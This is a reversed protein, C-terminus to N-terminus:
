LFNIWTTRLYPLFQMPHRSPRSAQHGHLWVTHGARNQASSMLYILTSIISRWNLPSAWLPYRVEELVCLSHSSLWSDTLATLSWVGSRSEWASVQSPVGPIFYFCFTVQNQSSVSSKELLVRFFFFFFSFGTYIIAWRKKDTRSYMELM